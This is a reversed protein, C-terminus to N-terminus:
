GMDLPDVDVSWRLRRALPHVQAMDCLQSLARQLPARREAHLLLQARHLGARRSLPAPLPGFCTVTGNLGARLDALLQEADRMDRADARVLALQGFPPLGTQRREELLARAYPGYGDRVLGVILPHDPYHTQLLVQGPREARGARGAVQTLVQGLREPGRFDASFLGGDADVMVVLTVAPFHHGKALMQTGVLVCPQGEAVTAVLEQMAHKRATTDRDIRLVPVSPFRATLAHELRETGPGRFDLAPSRCDPCATPLPQEYGCHHCRLRRSGIHVTLRADCHRCEAIWGCDHCLLTPAFGRRNLFVLAQEGRALTAAIAALADPALGEQMPAHRIDLVAVPPTAADGARQHLELHRYRGSLANHLSELSPTASGLLIPVGVLAARKIAVDRASYRFGDQQKYSADHEEDVVILGLRPLDAFVASRTGLVVGATGERAARWADLRERDNLGSHLVAIPTPLRRQFRALTQPTLGIEPILVLAQEGRALVQTVLQLYVETKGSGTVGDLLHCHFRGFDAAVAAIAAAQEASPSLAPAPTGDVISAIAAAEAEFREVLGKEALARLHERKLGLQELAADAVEGQALLLALAASQKPARPLAGEPLGLGATTLRWRLERASGTEGQRLLVPLAQQLCEGLPHRYYEAAWRLLELLSPPLVPQEDLLATAAKLQAPEYDSGEAVEILVGVVERRGFPLRLRVGPPLARAREPQCDAPPLYDFLQRLPSPVAVRLVM